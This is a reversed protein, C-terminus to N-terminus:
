EYKEGLNISRTSLDLITDKVHSSFISASKNDEINQKILAIAKKRSSIDLSNLPEDMLIIKKDLALFTSFYLKYKMGLSYTGIQYEPNIDLDLYDIYNYVKDVFIQDKKWLAKVWLIFDKASMIEFFNPQSPIYSIYDKLMAQTIKKNNLYCELDPCYNLGSLIKLLTTKGSGNKGNICLIEKEDLKFSFKDFILKDDYSFTLDKIELM